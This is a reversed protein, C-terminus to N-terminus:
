GREAGGGASFREGQGAGEGGEGLVGAAQYSVGGEEGCRRWGIGFWFGSYFRGGWEAGELIAKGRGSASFRRNEGM